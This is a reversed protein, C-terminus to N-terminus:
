YSHVDATRRADSYLYWVKLYARCGYKPSWRKLVWSDTEFGFSGDHRQRDQAPSFFAEDPATIIFEILEMADDISTADVFEATKGNGYVDDPDLSDVGDLMIANRQCANRLVALEEATMRRQKAM